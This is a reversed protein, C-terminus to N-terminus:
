LCPKLNGGKLWSSVAFVALTIQAGQLSPAQRLVREPTPARRSADKGSGSRRLLVYLVASAPCRPVHALSMRFCGRLRVPTSTDERSLGYGWHRRDRRAVSEHCLGGCTANTSAKRTARNGAVLGQPPYGFSAAFSGTRGTSAVRALCGAGRHAARNSRSMPVSVGGRSM